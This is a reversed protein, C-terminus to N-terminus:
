LNKNNNINKKNNIEMMLLNNLYNEMQILLFFQKILSILAFPFGIIELNPFIACIKFM